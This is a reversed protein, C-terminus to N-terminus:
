RSRVDLDDSSRHQRSLAGDFGGDDKCIPTAAMRVWLEAGDRCRLREEIQERLGQQRRKLVQEKHEVDEPFYFNLVSKGVMEGQEYGLMKAMQRNVYSTHLKSDLLWVGENTTEVIRRYEEKALGVDSALERNALFEKAFALVALFFISVLVILLRIVRTRYPEDVRLLEWVGVVPVAIVTLMALLSSYKTDRTDPQVSQALQPALKRGLLALWVFWCAAATYPIDQLGAYYGRFVLLINATLSGVTYLASAGFLHWYISKWPPRVRLIVVGLVVLLLLNAALYLAPGRLM